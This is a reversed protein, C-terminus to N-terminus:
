YVISTSLSLSIFLYLFLFFFLSLSLSLFCRGPGKRGRHMSKTKEKPSSDVQGDGEAISRGSVIEGGPTSRAIKRPHHMSRITEKPTAEVQGMRPASCRGPWRRRCHENTIALHTSNIKPDVRTQKHGIRHHSRGPLPSFRSIHKRM